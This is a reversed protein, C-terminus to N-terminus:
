SIRGDGDHRVRDSVPSTANVATNPFSLQAAAVGGLKINVARRAPPETGPRLIVDTARKFLDRFTEKGTL